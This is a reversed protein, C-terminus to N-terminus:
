KLDFEKDDIDINIQMDSQVMKMLVKNGFLNMEFPFQVGNINKYASFNVERSYENAKQNSKNEFTIKSLLYTAQNIHLYNIDGNDRKGIIIFTKGQAGDGGEGQYTLSVYKKDISALTENKLTEIEEESIQRINESKKRESKIGDWSKTIEIEIKKEWGKEGDFFRQADVLIPPKEGIAPMNMRVRSYIKNPFKCYYETDGKVTIIRGTPKGNTNPSIELTGKMMLTKPPPTDKEGSLELHKEWIELAKQQKEAESDKKVPASASTVYEYLSSQSLAFVAIGVTLIVVAVMAIKVAFLNEDSEPRRYPTSYATLESNCSRCSLRSPHNSLRCKPCVKANM